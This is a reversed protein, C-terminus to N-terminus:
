FRSADNRLVKQKEIKRLSERKEYLEEVNGVLANNSYNLENGCFVIYDGQKPNGWAYEGINIIPKGYKKTLAEILMKSWNENASHTPFVSTMYLRKEEPTFFLCVYCFKELIFTAYYLENVTSIFMGEPLLNMGVMRERLRGFEASGPNSAVSGKPMEKFGQKKLIDVVGVMPLGWEFVDYHATIPSGYPVVNTSQSGVGKVWKYFLEIQVKRTVVYMEQNEWLRESVEAWSEPLDNSFGLQVFQIMSIATLMVVAMYKMRIDHKMM